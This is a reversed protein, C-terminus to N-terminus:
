RREAFFEQMLRRCEESRVDHTVKVEHNHFNLDIAGIQSIVAGSKPEATGFVLHEIRAQILAGVCMLCPEVTVYLSCGPLRYNGVKSCAERLVVVEAHSTPDNLSICSNHGKAIISDAQVVVAGIPVEGGKQAIRAEDLAVDMYREHVM